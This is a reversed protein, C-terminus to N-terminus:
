HQKRYVSFEQLRKRVGWLTVLTIAELIIRNDMKSVGNIREVFSIPVESITRGHRSVALTMEIQFSFGQSRVESLDILDFVTNRFLRFGSTMDKISMGLVIRSYHNASKSLLKRYLPWNEVTGGAIWRSGIILDIESKEAILSLLKSLDKPQHSGDADMEISFGYNREIGWYFGQIYARGLGSKTENRIIFLRNRYIGTSLMEVLDGTGDPSNDDVVLVDIQDYLAMLESVIGSINEAENYTPLIVLFRNQNDENINMM